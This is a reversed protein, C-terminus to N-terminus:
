KFLLLNIIFLEVSIFLTKNEYNYANCYKKLLDQIIHLKNEKFYNKKDLYVLLYILYPHFCQERITYTYIYERLSPIYKISKKHILKYINEAFEKKKDQILLESKINESCVQLKAICDSLNGNCSDVINEIDGKTLKHLTPTKKQEKKYISILINILKKQEIQPIRLPLYFQKIKM